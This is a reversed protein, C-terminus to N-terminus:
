DKPYFIYPRHSVYRWGDAERPEKEFEIYYDKIIESNNPSPSLVVTYREESVMEPKPLHTRATQILKTKDM